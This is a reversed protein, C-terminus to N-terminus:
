LVNRVLYKRFCYLCGRLQPPGVLHPPTNKEMPNNIRKRGSRGKGGRGRIIIGKREEGRRKKRGVYM